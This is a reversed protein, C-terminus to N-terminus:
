GLNVRSHSRLSVDNMGRCFGFKRHRTTRCHINHWMESCGSAGRHTANTHVRARYDLGGVRCTRQLSSLLHPSSENVGIVRDSTMDIRSGSQLMLDATEHVDCPESSATTVSFNSGFFMVQASATRIGLAYTWAAPVCYYIHVPDANKRSKVCRLKTTTALRRQRFDWFFASRM